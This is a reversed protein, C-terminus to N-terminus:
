RSGLFQLDETAKRRITDKTLEGVYLIDFIEHRTKAQKSILKTYEVGLFKYVMHMIKTYVTIFCLCRKVNNAQEINADMCAYLAILKTKSSRKGLSDNDARVKRSM